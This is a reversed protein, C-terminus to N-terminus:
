TWCPAGGWSEESALKIFAKSVESLQKNAIKANNLTAQNALAVKQIKEFPESLLGELEPNKSSFELWQWFNFWVLKPEKPEELLGGNIATSVQILDYEVVAFLWRASSRASLFQTFSLAQGYTSRVNPFGGIWELLEALNYRIPSTRSDGLKRYPPGQIGKRGERAASLWKVSVDLMKAAASPKLYVHQPDRVESVVHIVQTLNDLGDKEVSVKPM